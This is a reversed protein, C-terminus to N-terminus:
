SADLRAVIEDLLRQELRPDRAVGHHYSRETVGLRQVGAPVENLEDIKRRPATSRTPRRVPIALQEIAATIDLRYDSGPVPQGPLVTPRDFSAGPTLAPPEPYVPLSALGPELPQAPVIEVRVVRQRQAGSAALSQPLTNGTAVWPEAFTGARLPRTTVVGFRHDRRDLTFGMDTLAHITAAYVRDYDAAPFTLEVTDDVLGPNDPAPTACAPLLLLAPAALLPLGIRRTPRTRRAPYPPVPPRRPM